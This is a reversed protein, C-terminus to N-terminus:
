VHDAGGVATVDSTNTSTLVATAADGVSLDASRAARHLEAAAEVATVGRRAMLVGQARAIMDRALLADRIRSAVQGDAAEDVSAARALLGAAADAFLVCLEQEHIGFPSSANSYVNLAGVSRGAVVLPTSVVSTIGLTRAQPVFRPWREEEALSDVFFPIGEDAASLCPGEGATHQYGDMQLVTEDTAAVTTMRGARRLIISVGEAGGVAGHALGTVVRLTADLVNEHARRAHVTKLEDRLPSGADMTVLDAIGTIDMIRRTGAPTARLVLLEHSREALRNVADIVVALGAADMFTLGALDLVLPREDAQAILARMVARLVPASLPDVAGVVVVVTERAGFDIEVGFTPDAHGTM